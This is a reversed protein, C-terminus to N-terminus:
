SRLSTRSRPAHGASFWAPGPCRSRAAQVRRARHGTARAGAQSRSRRRKPEWEGGRCAIRWGAKEAYLCEQARKSCAQGIVAAADSPCVEDPTPDPPPPPPPGATPGATVPAHSPAPPGAPPRRPEGPGGKNRNASEIMALYDELTRFHTMWEVDARVIGVTGKACGRRETPAPLGSASSSPPNAFGGPPPPPTPAVPPDHPCGGAICAPQKDFDICDVTNPGSEYTLRVYRRDLRSLSWQPAAEHLATSSALARSGHNWCRAGGAARVGLHAGTERAGGRVGRGLRLKRFRQKSRLTWFGISFRAAKYPNPM